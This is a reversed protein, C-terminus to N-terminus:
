LGYRGRLANFNQDIEDVSLERNYIAVQGIDGQFPETNDIKNGIRATQNSLILNSAGTSSDGQWVLTGNQYIKIPNNASPLFSNVTIASYMWQNQTISATTQAVNNQGNFGWNSGNQIIAARTNATSASSNQEIITHFGTNTTTKWWACLTYQQQNASLVPNISCFADTTGDFTLAGSNYTVNSTYAGITNTILSEYQSNNANTFSNFTTATQAREVQLGDWWLIQNQGNTNPGDLRVQIHRIATNAFTIYHQQRTWEPTININKLAIGYYSGNFVFGNNDAGFIYIEGTSNTNSKVYVSVCWIQNTNAPSLNNQPLNFTGIYPDNGTTVMKMPIGGAPSRSTTSDQSIACNVKTSNNSWTYIDLPAPHVNVSYSKPNTADYCAMLGDTIIRSNYTTSM